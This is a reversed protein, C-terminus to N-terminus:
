LKEFIVEGEYETLATVGPEPNSNESVQFTVRFSSDTLEEMEYGDGLASGQGGDLVLGEITNGDSSWMGEGVLNEYPFDQETPYGENLYGDIIVDLQNTLTVTYGGETAYTKDELLEVTYTIDKTIGSFNQIQSLSASSATTMGSYTMSSLQWTGVLLTESANLKSIDDDKGCSFLITTMLALLLVKTKMLKSIKPKRKKQM